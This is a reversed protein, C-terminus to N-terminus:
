LQMIINTFFVQWKSFNPFYQVMYVFLLVPHKSIWVESLQNAMAVAILDACRKASVRKGGARTPPGRVSSATMNERFINNVFPTDVPGPCISLISIDKDFLEVRLTDFYGQLLCYHWIIDLGGTHAICQSIKM